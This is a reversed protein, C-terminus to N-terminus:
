LRSDQRLRDLLERCEAALKTLRDDALKVQEGLHAAAVIEDHYWLVDGKAANFRDWLLEGGGLDAVMAHMNHLKDALVVARTDADARRVRDIHERKRDLWPRRCGSEDLKRESAGAVIACVDVPFEAQLVELTLATDELTDHLIAAALLPESDFGARLLILAVSAPHSFYPLSSAKRMQGQHAAASVRVAKELLPSWCWTSM